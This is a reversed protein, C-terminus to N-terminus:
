QMCCVSLAPALAAGHDPFSKLKSLIACLISVKEGQKHQKHADAISVAAALVAVLQLARM